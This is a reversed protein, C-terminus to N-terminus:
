PGGVNTEGAARCEGGGGDGCKEQRQWQRQDYKRCLKQGLAKASAPGEPQLVRGGGGRWIDLGCQGECGAARQYLRPSADWRFSCDARGQDRSQKRYCNSSPCATHKAQNNRIHRGTLVLAEPPLAMGRKDMVTDQHGPWTSMQVLFSMAPM